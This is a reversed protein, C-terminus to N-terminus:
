FIVLEENKIAKRVYRMLTIAKITSHFTATGVDEANTCDIPFQYTANQTKVEYYIIGAIVHSITALNDNMVIQKLITLNEM